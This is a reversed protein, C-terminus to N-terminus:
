QSPVIARYFRPSNTAPLPETFTFNNSSPVNTSIPSWDFLNPSAQIITQKGPFSTVVEFAFNGDESLRPSHLGLRVVSIAIPETSEIGRCARYQARLRYSGEPLNTITISFPPSSASFPGAQTVVGVSNTGVFFEVPGTEGACSALQEVSVGLTAPAPFMAGDAPSNMAIVANPPYGIFYHITVPASVSRNGNSDLAAATLVISRDPSGNGTVIWITQYPPNTVVSILNTGAYFQVQAITGNTDTALAKIKILTSVSFSNASSPWIISVQAPGNSSGNQGRAERGVSVLMAGVLSLVAIKLHKM